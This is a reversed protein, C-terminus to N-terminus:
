LKASRGKKWDMVEKCCSRATTFVLGKVLTELYYSFISMYKNATSAVPESESSM